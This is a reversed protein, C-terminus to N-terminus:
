AQDIMQAIKQKPQLGVIRNVEKGDKFLVLTPISMVGFKAALDQYEDIDVKGVVAKGEYDNALEDIVPGLMKCPGCWQAWFDVLAIGKSNEVTSQFTDADFHVLAM